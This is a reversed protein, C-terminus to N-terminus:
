DWDKRRQRIARKVAEMTRILDLPEELVADTDLDQITQPIEHGDETNILLIVAVQRMDPRRRIDQVIRHYDVTPLGTNLVIASLGGRYRLIQEMAGCGSDTELIRFSDEFCNRLIVRDSILSDALLMLPMDDQGGAYETMRLQNRGLRKADYLARDAALFVQSFTLGTQSSVVVGVSCSVPFSFRSPNSMQSILAEFQSHIWEESAASKILVVFEDGGFRGLLCNEEKGSFLNQLVSSLALLVSDGMRHGHRDNIEKFRDLDIVGLAFFGGNSRQRLFDEACYEFTAKNLLGTMTDVSCMRKLDMRIIFADIKFRLLEAFSISGIGLAVVTALADQQFVNVPKYRFSFVLFIVAATFIEPLIARPPLTYIQTMLVLTLPFLLAAQAPFVRLGLWAALVLIEAGFLLILGTTIRQSPMRRFLLSAVSVATHIVTAILIARTQSEMGQPMCVLLLYALLCLLYIWTMKQFLSWNHFRLEDRSVTFFERVKRSKRNLGDMCNHSFHGM